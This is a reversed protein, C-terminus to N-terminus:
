YNFIDKIKDNTSDRPVYEKILKQMDEIEEKYKPNENYQHYALVSNLQCDIIKSKYDEVAERLTNDNILDPAAEYSLLFNLIWQEAKHPSSFYYRGFFRNFHDHYMEIIQNDQKSFEEFYLKSPYEEFKFKSLSRKYQLSSYFKEHLGTKYAILAKIKMLLKKDYLIKDIILNCNIKSYDCDNIFEPLREKDDPGEQGEQKAPNRHVTVYHVESLPIINHCSDDNILSPLNYQNIGFDDTDWYLFKEFKKNNISNKSFFKSRWSSKVKENRIKERKHQHQQKMFRYSDKSISKETRATLSKLLIKKILMEFTMVGELEMINMMGLIFKSEIKPYNNTKFYKLISSDIVNEDKAIYVLFNTERNRELVKVQHHIIALPDRFWDHRRSIELKPFNYECDAEDVYKKMTSRVDAYVRHLCHDDNMLYYRAISQNYTLSKNPNIANFFAYPKGHHVLEIERLIKDLLDNIKYPYDYVYQPHKLFVTRVTLMSLARCRVVLKGFEHTFHSLYQTDFVKLRSYDQGKDNGPDRVIDLIKEMSGVSSDMKSFDLKLEVDGYKQGYYKVPIRLGRPRVEIKFHRLLNM